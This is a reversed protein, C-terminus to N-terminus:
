NGLVVGQELAYQRITGESQAAEIRRQIDQSQEVLQQKKEELNKIRISKQRIIQTNMCIMAIMAVVVFTFAAMVIKALPTLGYSVEVAKETEHVPATFEVPAPATHVQMNEQAIEYKQTTFLAAAMPSAYETVLPAQELKGVNSPSIYLPAEEQVPEAVAETSVAKVEEEDFQGRVYNQIKLFNENISENHKQAKEAELKQLETRERLMNMGWEEM